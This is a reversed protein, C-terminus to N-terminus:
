RRFGEEIRKVWHLKMTELELAALNGLGASNFVCGADLPILRSQSNDIIQQIVNIPTPTHGYLILRNPMFHQPIPEPRKWLISEADTFPNSASYNLSGHVLIYLNSIEHYLPLSSYFNLHNQPLGNPFSFSDGLAQQYSKKTVDGANIMWLKFSYLDNLSDLLMQEHNGRLLFISFGNNILNILYEVTEFSMPGRDIYDGLLYLRDSKSLGIKEEVLTKLTLYCGHVDGVVYTSM